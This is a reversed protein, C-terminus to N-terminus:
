SVDIAFYIIKNREREKEKEEKRERRKVVFIFEVNLSRSENGRINKKVAVLCNLLYLKCITQLAGYCARPYFSWKNTHWLSRWLTRDFKPSFIIRENTVFIEALNQFM